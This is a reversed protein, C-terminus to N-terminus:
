HDLLLSLKSNVICNIKVSKTDLFLHMVELIEAKELHEKIFTCISVKAKGFRQCHRAAAPPSTKRWFVAGGWLFLKAGAPVRGLMSSAGVHPRMVEDRVATRPQAGNCTWATAAHSCRTTNSHFVAHFLLLLVDSVPCRVALLNSPISRNKIWWSTYLSQLLSLQSKLLNNLM